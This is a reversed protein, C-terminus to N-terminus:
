IVHVVPKGGPIPSCSLRRSISAVYGPLWNVLRKRNKKNWQPKSMDTRCTSNGKRWYYVDDVGGYAFRAFHRSVALAPCAPLEVWAVLITGATFLTWCRMLCPPAPHACLLLLMFFFSGCGVEMEKLLVFCFTRLVAASPKGRRRGVYASGAEGVWRADRQTSGTGCVSLRCLASVHMGERPLASLTHQSTNGM